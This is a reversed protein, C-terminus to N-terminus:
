KGWFKKMKDRRTTLDKIKKRCSKSFQGSPDKELAIKFENIANDFENRDKKEYSIGLFYHPEALDPKLMMANGFAEIADWLQGKSGKKNLIKGRAM